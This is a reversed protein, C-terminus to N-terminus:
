IDEYRLMGAPESALPTSVSAWDGRPPAVVRWDGKQWQLSVTVQLFRQDAPLDPASLIVDVVATGSTLDFTRVIYGALEGAASTATVSALQARQATVTRKLAAVNAGTAQAALTSEFVQADVTAGTRVLLHCAAVAAGAESQAFGTALGDATVRPGNTRSVPLKMGGAEAWTIEPPPAPTTASHSTDVAQLEDAGRDAKRTLLLAAVIAVAALVAIAVVAPRVRTRRM